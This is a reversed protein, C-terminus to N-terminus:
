VGRERGVGNGVNQAAPIVGQRPTGGGVLGGADGDGIVGEAGDDVGDHAGADVGFVFDADFEAFDL